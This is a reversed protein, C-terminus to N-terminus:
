RISYSFSLSINTGPKYKSIEQDLSNSVYKKNQDEDYYLVSRQNFLDSANLKIEGKSKIVKYGIQLDLLDRPDEWVNPFVKGGVKNIRRGIRNYLLNISLKNNLTNHQLGANVVYPSQGVLPRNSTINDISVVDVKSKMLSANTYIGTNKFFNGDGLFALGKRLEFEIGYVTADAANQYSIDPTSNVDYIYPEIANNFKKYFVSASIIEGASPYFEYRLDANSIHTRELLPNGYQIALLEYDYYSFPALERFEPRALTRSFSARVNARETLGYTLNASPLIDLQSQDVEPAKAAATELVINYNEVRVGWVLRVNNGLKNDLMAYASSTLSHANYSDSGNAIEDLKFLGQNVLNESFLTSIPRELIDKDYTKLVEGLFRANFDRDRYQSGVGAKFTGSNRGLKIPLSYNVDASYLNEGLDSFLRANEKGLSLINASFKVSPNDRDAASRSYSVKRQDPQKNGINSYALTWHLKSQGEGVNHDGDLTTKFLSKKILDFAYFKVDSSNGSNYGNRTLFQDDLNNNYINKLTIKSKGYTYGINALAGISTSFKFIQDTYDNYVYFNRTVDPTNSQSNRYSVSFIAGLRNGSSLNNVKGFSLQYNQSPLAKNNYINWDRDISNLASKTGETTLNNVQNPSPFNSPLNYSNNYGSYNSLSLRSGKFDKFTSQTNYSYGISYSVFSADPIDKTLIQVSGGAFDAPMDPSATKRIIVNDILSSPVIDFSFAKRNPETSPLSGNDLSATNYRDSLGRVVVFKNDQITTGSVRKLVEGTNRDPSKRIVDGSIGDSVVASNKQQAYLANLSEQRASVTVVVEKLQQSAGEDMVLSLNTVEGAKVVVDTINKTQYGVYSFILSYKGAALGGISYHGEVDTSVGKTTGQIKVTLGILTEGTKKDTVKGSIRGTQQASVTLINLFLLILLGTTKFIYNRKVKAKNTLLLLIIM